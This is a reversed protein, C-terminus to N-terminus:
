IGGGPPVRCARGRAARPLLGAPRTPLAKPHAALRRSAPSATDDNLLPLATAHGFGGWGTPRGPTVAPKRPQEDDVIDRM